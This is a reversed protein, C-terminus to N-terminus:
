GMKERKKRTEGSQLFSFVEQGYSLVRFPPYQPEAGGGRREGPDTFDLNELRVTQSLGITPFIIINNLCNSIKLQIEKFIALYM